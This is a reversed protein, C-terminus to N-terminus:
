QFSEMGRESRRIGMESEIPLISIILYSFITAHSIVM